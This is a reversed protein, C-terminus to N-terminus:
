RCSASRSCCRSGGCDLRLLAILLPSAALTLFGMVAAARYSAWVIETETRRVADPAAAVRRAATAQLGLSVVNLVLMLGMLAALVGFQSPGLLRASAVTFAYTTVNMVGMSVAIVGSGVMWTPLPRTRTM